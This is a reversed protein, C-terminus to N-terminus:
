GCFFVIKKDSFFSTFSGSLGLTSPPVRLLEVMLFYTKGELSMENLHITRSVKDVTRRLKDIPERM